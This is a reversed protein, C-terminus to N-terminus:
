TMQAFVKEVRVLTRGTKELAVITNEFTPPDASDAIARVEALHEKMGQEFAPMYTDITIKDFPPAQLYLASPTLFPNPPPPPPVPKPQEPPPPQVPPAPM